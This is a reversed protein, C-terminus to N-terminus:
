WFLTATPDEHDPDMQTVKARGDVLEVVFVSGARRAQLTLEGLRPDITVRIDRNPGASAWATVLWRDANRMKRALVRATPVSATRTGWPVQTREGVSPFEMAKTVGSSAASYAHDDPGPLLDGDRLFQELHTFLAYAKSLQIFNRIQTPRQTGVALNSQMAQFLPGECVFYGSAAGIAGATFYAKMMGLFLDDDSIRSSYTAADGREWGLSVWPYVFKQGLALTGGVDRLAQTLADYPIGQGPHIGSWGTNFYSFYMQPSGYDSVQPVGSTSFFQEWVFMANRWDAWRGREPGYSELYWSYLPRGRSLRSFMGEKILREQRAKAASVYDHWRAFGSAQYDALVRPDQGWLQAPDRGGSLWLGYEGENVVMRIPQGTADEVARAKDGIQQGIQTFVSDPATPSVIPRGDNIVITGSADRIYTEPPPRLLQSDAGNHNSFVRWLSAQSFAVPYIGPRSKIEQLVPSNALNVGENFQGAYGWNKMLEVQISGAVACSSYTLPLLTHGPKFVPRIESRLHDLPTSNLGFVIENPRVTLTMTDSDAVSTGARNQSMRLVYTGPVRASVMTTASDAAQFIISAPGSVQEWRIEEAGASGSLRARTEPLTIALDPGANIGITPPQPSSTSQGSGGCATLILTPLIALRVKQAWAFRNM